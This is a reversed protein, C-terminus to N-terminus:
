HITRKTSLHVSPFAVSSSSPCSSELPFVFHGNSQSFFPSNRTPAPAQPRPSPGGENFSIATALPSSGRLRQSAPSTATSRRKSKNRELVPSTASAPTGPSLFVSDEPSTAGFAGTALSQSAFSSPDLALQPGVTAISGPNCTETNFSDTALASQFSSPLLSTSFSPVNPPLQYSSIDNFEGVCGKDAIPITDVDFATTGFIDQGHSDQQVIGPRSMSMNPQQHWDNSMQPRVSPSGMASSITSQVSTGSDSTSSLNPPNRFDFSHSASNSPSYNPSQPRLHTKALRYSQNLLLQDQNAQAYSPHLQSQDFSTANLYHQDAFSTPLFNTDNWAEQYPYLTFDNDSAMTSQSQEAFTAM